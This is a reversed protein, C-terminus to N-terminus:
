IRAASNRGYKYKPEVNLYTTLSYITTAVTSAKLPTSSFSKWRRCRRYTQLEYQRSSPEIVGLDLAFIVFQYPLSTAFLKLHLSARRRAAV